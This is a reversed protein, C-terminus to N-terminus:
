SFKGLGGGNEQGTIFVAGVLALRGSEGEVMADERESEVAIDRGLQKLVSVM